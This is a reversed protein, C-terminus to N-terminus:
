RQSTANENDFVFELSTHAEELSRGLLPVNQTFEAQFGKQKPM